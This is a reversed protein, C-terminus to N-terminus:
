GAIAATTLTRATHAASAIAQEPTLGCLDTLTFLAEASVVAALDLRLQSFADPDTVALTGRLPALAHDILGFRLGPRARAAEPRTITAAIMARVAGQCSLVHRFLAEAAYAIREAPDSSGGVPRLAQEPGPWIGAIAETLLSPLDPFYRYATPESVLAAQAIAPMTVPQGTQILERAAGVIAMRTRTKQNVRGPQPQPQATM